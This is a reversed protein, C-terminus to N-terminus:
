DSDRDKRSRGGGGDLLKVAQRLVSADQSEVRQSVDTKEAVLWSDDGQVCLSLIWDSGLQAQLTHLGSALDSEGDLEDAADEEEDEDPEEDKHFEDRAIERAISRALLPIAGRNLGPKIRETLYDALESEDIAAEAERGNEGGSLETDDDEERRTQSREAPM